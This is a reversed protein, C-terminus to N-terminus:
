TEDDDMMMIFSLTADMFVAKTNGESGFFITKGGESENCLWANKVKVRTGDNLYVMYNTTKHAM